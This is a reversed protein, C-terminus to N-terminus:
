TQFTIHVIGDDKEEGAEHGQQDRILGTTAEKTLVVRTKSDEYLHVLEDVFRTSYTLSNPSRKSMQLAIVEHDVDCESMKGAREVVSGARSGTSSVKELSDITKDAIDQLARGVQQAATMIARWNTEVEM